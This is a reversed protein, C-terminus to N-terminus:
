CRVILKKGGMDGRKLMELGPVVQELGGELIHMDPFTVKGQAVLENFAEAYVKCEPDLVFQKMEVTHVTVNDPTVEDNAIMALPAFDVREAKSVSQLVLKATKPGVLDIAKTICGNTTHRIEDIIEQDSKGDRSVVHTAGLSLSLPKTRESTVTIVKWGSHVALQTAFQGTVASGGWILLWNAERDSQPTGAPLSSPPWGIGLWKWLTMAATLGPVGLCAAEEYGVHDPIKLVTHQPVVVYEQFCGARVDRYYTSTWVRDGEKIHTVSPHVNVVTGAAERGTIWPFSPLCFNYSVSKWDIPNLGVAHPKIM